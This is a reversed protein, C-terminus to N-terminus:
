LDRWGEGSPCALCRARWRQGDDDVPDISEIVLNVRIDGFFHAAVARALQVIEQFGPGYQVWTVPPPAGTLQIKPGDDKKGVM